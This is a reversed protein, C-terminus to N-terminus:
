NQLLHVAAEALFEAGLPLCKEDFIVQPHHLFFEGMQESMAGIFYFASPVKRAYFAFDEAGMTPPIPHIGLQFVNDAVPHLKQLLADDNIVSPYFSKIQLQIEVTYALSIGDIIQQLKNKILAFDEDTLARITGTLRAQGAIVNPATGAHFETISVVGAHLPSINRSVISQLNQVLASGALIADKSLHPAAGAHGSKGIIEIEFNAANALATGSTFHLMGAPALPNVHLAIAADVDDLIGEEVVRQGGSKNEADGNTGEESPQFICKVKGKFDKSKLLHIAGLLMSTHMDHGCSHMIGPHTSSFDLGTLEQMPLADIDARLLITKGEGKHLEALVGTGKALGRQFPIDLQKLTQCILESTKFEQYGIEPIQHFKRRLSILDM